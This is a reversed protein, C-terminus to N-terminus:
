LSVPSKDSRKIRLVMLGAIMILTGSFIIANEPHGGLIYKYVYKFTLTELLMPMVIFMNLIGMFIGTKAPPISGALMAYPTGMMSAWAIGLGIIPVILLVPQHISPLCVLGIGGALLSFLHVKKSTIKRAFYALPFAVIFTVINYGGNVSGTLLQASAFGDSSVNVTNYITKALCLTIFQWYIFMGYWNFLYVLGLKRMTSPMVKFAAYIDKFISVLGNPMTKIKQIEVPSLPTEKTTFCSFMISGVSVIGGIFFAAFTTYPINNTSRDHINLIGAAILIAPTLNALTIGLGTFFSQTLFGLAHQEPPLKDSVFARYPEMTINNGADLIWLIGAAMWITSSYPMAFLCISCIIAGILFYPRRRGFRSTTKDSMAGIIPQIILGTMPGALNLLPIQSADAGLYAYIPTMNTQQLGFSYQIGFFGMNMAIISSFNLKVASTFRNAQDAQRVIM